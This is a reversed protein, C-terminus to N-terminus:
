QCVEALYFYFCLVDLVKFGIKVIVVTHFVTYVPSLTFNPNQLLYLSQIDSIMPILIGTFFLLLYECMSAQLDISFWIRIWRSMNQIIGKFVFVSLKIWGLLSSWGSFFVSFTQCSWPVCMFLWAKFIDAIIFSQSPFM